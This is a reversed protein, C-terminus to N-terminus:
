GGLFKGKDSAPLSRIYYCSSRNYFPTNTIDLSTTEVFAPKTLDLALCFPHM